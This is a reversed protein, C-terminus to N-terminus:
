WDAPERLAEPLYTDAREGLRAMLQNFDRRPLRVDLVPRGKEDFHEARVANLEHLGARLKGQEPALTLSFGIVDDALRETLAQYLLDLGRGDQASLWVTEPLGNGDREIRPASDLRDIKNMVKLMPVRDAGIEGLVEDVQEVNLERDPDAADIVHILLAADAAEQLTAQFAEVLKHPLHRIFGVTDAMVVPGVDDIELRRLTPDLTAFLQDAAYVESRTLANFLTSKGANTYGVLSLSNIEARARARRNQERQSRVKNLRKHIAKIRGRLLRRDTELQTEGPGRLGIGGKQRELHTWGRVLRTSMYELQALEVQLKGEHTRARQAFIDLILGTRDLVRCKLEHELNRQQSPSLGHNFIVLEAEHAALMARLEELKGSGIFTRSDPRSRSATLLTASVAGASKVLELFEGSDERAFEDQFDVHVLVATEGAEPREFFM